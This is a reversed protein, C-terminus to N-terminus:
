WSAWFVLLVKRGRLADLSIPKGDLDTGAVPPAPDGRGVYRDGFKPLLARSFTVAAGDDSVSRLAFTGSAVRFSASGAFTEGDLDFQGDDDRDICLDLADLDFDGDADRDRILFRYSSGGLDVTGGRFEPEVVLTGPSGEEREVRLSARYPAGPLAFDRPDGVGSTAGSEVVAAGEVDIQPPRDASRADITVAFAHGRLVITGKDLGTAADHVLPISREAPECTIAFRGGPAAQAEVSTAAHLVCGATWLVLVAAGLALAAIRVRGGRGAARESM